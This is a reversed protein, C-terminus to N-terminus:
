GLGPKAVDPYKTLMTDTTAVGAVEVKNPAQDALFRSDIRRKQIRRVVHPNGSMRIGHAAVPFERHSGTFHVLRLEARKQLLREPNASRDGAVPRHVKDTHVPAVHIVDRRYALRDIAVKQVDADPVLGIRSHSREIARFMLQDKHEPDTVHRMEVRHLQALM